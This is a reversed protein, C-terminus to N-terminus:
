KTEDAKNEDFPELVLNGAKNKLEEVKFKVEKLKGSLEQAM